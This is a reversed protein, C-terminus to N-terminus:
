AKFNVTWITSALFKFLGAEKVITWLLAPVAQVRQFLIDACVEEDLPDGM